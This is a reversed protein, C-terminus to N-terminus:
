AKTKVACCLFAANPHVMRTPRPAQTVHSPDNLLKSSATDANPIRASNHVCKRGYLM